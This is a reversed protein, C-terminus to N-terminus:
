APMGGEKLLAKFSAWAVPPLLYYTQRLARLRHFSGPLEVLAQRILTSAESLHGLRVLVAAKLLEMLGRQRVNTENALYPALQDLAEADRGEVFYLQAVNPSGRPFPQAKILADAEALFGAEEDADLLASRLLLNAPDLDLGHKAVEIAEGPRDLGVLAEAKAVTAVLNTPDDRLLTDVVDLARTGDKSGVQAPELSLRENLDMVLLLRAPFLHPDTECARELDRIAVSCREPTDDDYCETQARIYFDIADGPPGTRAKEEDIFIPNSIRQRVEEAANSLDLRSPATPVELSGSEVLEGDGRTLEYTLLATSGMQHVTSSLRFHLPRGDPAHNSEYFRIDGYRHPVSKIADMYAAALDVASAPGRAQSAQLAVTLRLDQSNRPRPHWQWTGLALGVTLCTAALAVPLWARRLARRREVPPAVAATTTAARSESAPNQRQPAVSSSLSAAEGFREVVESVFQYGRGPVNVIAQGDIGHISLIRRLSAVQVAINSDSVTTGAWVRALLEDRCVIRERSEVLVALLDFARGHVMVPRDGDLLTRRGPILRLPGIEYQTEPRHFM